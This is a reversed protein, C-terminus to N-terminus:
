DYAEEEQRPAKAQKAAFSLSCCEKWACRSGLLGHVTAAFADTEPAGGGHFRGNGPCRRRSLMRKRPVAVAFADTVLAGGGHFRGNGPCRRRSLM